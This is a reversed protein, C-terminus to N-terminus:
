IFSDLRGEQPAAEILVVADAEGFRDPLSALAV